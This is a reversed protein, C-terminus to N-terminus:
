DIPGRGTARLDDLTAQMLGQVEGLLAEAEDPARGATPVPPLFRVRIRGPRLM